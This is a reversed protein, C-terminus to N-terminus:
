SEKDPPYGGDTRRLISRRVGERNIGAAEAIADLSHGRDRLTVFLNARQDAARNGADIARKLSALQRRFAAPVPASPARGRGRTTTAGPM